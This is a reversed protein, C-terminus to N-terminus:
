MFLETTQVNVWKTLDDGGRTYDSDAYYSRHTATCQRKFFSPNPMCVSRLRLGSVNPSFISEKEQFIESYWVCVNKMAGFGM